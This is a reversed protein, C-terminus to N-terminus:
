GRRVEETTEQTLKLCAEILEDENLTRLLMSQSRRTITGTEQEIIRLACVKRVVEDVKSM